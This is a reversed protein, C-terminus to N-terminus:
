MERFLIKVRSKCSANSVSSARIFVFMSPTQTSIPVVSIYVYTTNRVKNATIDVMSFRKSNIAINLCLAM